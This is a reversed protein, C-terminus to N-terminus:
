LPNLQEDSLSGAYAPTQQKTLSLWAVAALRFEFKLSGNALSAFEVSSAPALIIENRQYGQCNPWRAVLKCSLKPATLLFFFFLKPAVPPIRVWLVLPKLKPHRGTADGHCSDQWFPPINPLIFPASPPLRVWLIVGRLRVRIGTGDCGSSHTM